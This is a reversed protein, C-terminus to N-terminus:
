VGEYSLSYGINPTPANLTVVFSSTSFSDVAVTPFLLDGGPPINISVLIVRPNVTLDVPVEVVANGAPIVYTGGFIQPSTLVADYMLSYGPVGVSSSLVVTCGTPVLTGTVVDSFLLDGGPPTIVTTFFLSPMFKLALPVPVSSVGVPLAYQGSFMINSSSIDVAGGTYGTVRYFLSYGSSPIPASFVVQFGNCNLSGATVSGFISTPNGTSAVTVRVAVPAFPANIPINLVTSGPPLSYSGFIATIIQNPNYTGFNLFPNVTRIGDSLPQGGDFPLRARLSVRQCESLSGQNNQLLLNKRILTGNSGWVMEMPVQVAPSNTEDVAGYYNKVRPVRAVLISNVPPSPILIRDDNWCGRNIECPSYFGNNM